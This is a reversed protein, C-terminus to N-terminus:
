CTGGEHQWSEQAGIKQKKTVQGVEQKKLARGVKLVVGRKANQKAQLRTAVIKDKPNAVIGLLGSDGLLTDCRTKSEKLLEIIWMMRNQFTWSRTKAAQCWFSGDLLHLVSPGVRHLREALDEIMWCLISKDVHLYYAPGTLPGYWRKQLSNQNKVSQNGQIGTLNNLANLLMQVWKVRDQDTAPLTTDDECCRWDPVSMAEIAQRLSSVVDSPHAVHAATTLVQQDPLVMNYYQQDVNLTASSTPMDPVFQGNAYQSGTSYDSFQPTLSLHSQKYFHNNDCTAPSLSHTDMSTDPSPQSAYPSDGASSQQQQHYQKETPEFLVHQYGWLDQLQQEPSIQSAYHDDWPDQLQEEPSVQPAYMRFWTEHPQQWGPSAMKPITIPKQKTATRCYIM